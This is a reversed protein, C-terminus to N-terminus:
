PRRGLRRHRRWLLVAGALLTGLAAAALLARSAPMAPRTPDGASRRATSEIWNGTSEDLSVYRGAPLGGLVHTEGSPWRVELSAAGGRPNLAFLLRRDGASQYSDGGHVRRVQTTEGQRLTVVAGVAETNPGRGRLLLGLWSHGTLDNRLLQLPGGNGTVALDIDGDDDYDAAALGRGVRRSAFAPGCEVTEFAGGGDGLLLLDPQEYSTTERPPNEYIHGNAVYADLDGDVDLDALILGFGLLNFSPVGFGSEASLDEFLMQGRNLYLTNTEVDFNSVALDPDGDGDVDGAAVGMGAEAKGQRNLGAGSLLSLPEFTGDGRNRFLLNITLDNAVYLDAHGDDDLDTFIVGLGRGREEALGASVTADEFTGDGRNLYFGDRAGVFLTPDCYKREGTAPDGCFVDERPDYAVYRAVYLDLDGDGDSDAFAASSSWGGSAPIARPEFRGQGDNILLADPGYNAVFLDVDGDGDVDATGVGQGYGRDDAGGAGEVEAFRGRGLNRYLRNAAAASGDPPFPGSQVVYLDLLGDGDFDLWAAGAGMTEPLHKEGGAGRRHEFSLGSPAAVDSLTLGGCRDAARTATAAVSAICSCLLAARQLDRGM